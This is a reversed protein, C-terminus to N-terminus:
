EWHSSNLRTSKRDLLGLLLAFGAPDFFFKWASNEAAIAADDNSLGAPASIESIGLVEYVAFLAVLISLINLVIQKGGNPRPGPRQPVGPLGVAPYIPAPYNTRYLM